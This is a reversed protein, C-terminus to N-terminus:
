SATNTARLRSCARGTTRGCVMWYVIAIGSTADCRYAMVSVTLPAVPGVTFKCIGTHDGPRYPRMSKALFTCSKATLPLSPWGSRQVLTSPDSHRTDVPALRLTRTVYRTNALEGIDPVNETSSLACALQFPADSNMYTLPWLCSGTESSTVGSSSYVNRNLMPNGPPSPISCKYEVCICLRRKQVSVAARKGPM